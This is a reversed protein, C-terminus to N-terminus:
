QSIFFDKRPNENKFLTPDSKKDFNQSQSLTKELSTPM